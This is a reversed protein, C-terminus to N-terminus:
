RHEACNDPQKESSLPANDHDLPADCLRWFMAWKNLFSTVPFSHFIQLVVFDHM